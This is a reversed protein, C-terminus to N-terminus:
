VPLFWARFKYALGALLLLLLLVGGAVLQWTPMGTRTTAGATAGPATAVAGGHQGAKTNDQAQSAGTAVPGAPKTSAAATTTNGTGSVVQFTVPGSFKVKRGSLGAARVTSDLPGATAPPVDYGLACGALLWGSLLLVWACFFLLLRPM